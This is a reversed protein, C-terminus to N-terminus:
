IKSRKIPGSLIQLPRNNEDNQREEFPNSRSNDGIYHFPSLHSVNFSTIINHEGLLDLKYANDKDM